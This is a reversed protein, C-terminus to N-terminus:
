AILSILTYRLLYKLEIMSTNRLFKLRLFAYNSKSIKRTFIQKRLSLSKGFICCSFYLFFSFNSGREFPLWLIIKRDVFPVQYPRAVWVLCNHLPGFGPTFSKWSTLVFSRRLRFLSNVHINVQETLMLISCLFTHRIICEM